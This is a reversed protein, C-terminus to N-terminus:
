KKGTSNEQFGQQSNIQQIYLPKNKSKLEM